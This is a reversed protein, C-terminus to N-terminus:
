ILVEADAVVLNSLTLTAATLHGTLDEGWPTPMTVRQMLSEDDAWVMRSNLTKRRMWYDYVRQAVAQANDAHVLTADTVTKVNQIDSPTVNPNSITVTGTTHVYKMGNVTVIDDGSAGAGETYTHYTVTVATVVASQKLGAGLLVDRDPIVAPTGAAPLFCKIKRSGSTDVVAGVAFALQQLAARATGAPLYGKVPLDAVDNAIELAFANGVIAAAVAAFTTEEAYMAGAWPYSDLVGVADQCSVTYTGEGTRDPVEDIYFVGLLKTGSYAEVPQKLQFVYSNDAPSSLTWDLYNAPLEASIPHAELKLKISGLEQGTFIRILGFLVQDLRARRYPLSTKKLTIDIRNYAEVTKACFYAPADPYFTQQALQAVGQYWTIEVEACFNPTAQSFILSVGLSTYQQGFDIRLAPPSEFAGDAGSLASSLFAIPQADYLTYGGDLVWLNKELTILAPAGAGDPLLTTDSATSAGTATIAADEDAGVAVDRYILKSSM